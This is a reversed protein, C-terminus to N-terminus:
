PRDYGYDPSSSSSSLWKVLAAAMWCDDDDNDIVANGLEMESFLINYWVKSDSLTVRPRRREGVRGLLRLVVRIVDDYYGLIVLLWDGITTACHATCHLALSHDM